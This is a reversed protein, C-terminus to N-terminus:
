MWISKTQERLNARPPAAPNEGWEQEKALQAAMRREMRPEVEPTIFRTLQAYGYQDTAPGRAAFFYRLPHTVYLWDKARTLAVYFM